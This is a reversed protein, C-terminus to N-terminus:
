EEKNVNNRSTPWYVIYREFHVKYFPEIRITSEDPVDMEFALSDLSVSKISSFILGDSVRLRPIREISIMGKAMNNLKGRFMKPSDQEGMRGSLVFPGYLLAAYDKSGQLYETYLQLSFDLSISNERNWERDIIWYGDKECPHLMAEGNVKLISNVAWKPKRIYLKFSKKEPIDLQFDVRSFNRWDVNQVLRIGKEKWALVSPIFLNVRLDDGQHTYIFKGLKAPSELGTHGCCWFSSDRTAYVKFHGPRMPTFYCCMGQQPDYASLIHNFLTREYYDALDANPHYTFLAETLRLMNVSNCTEPGGELLIKKAFDEKPFFHEGTSNGGIVWTHNKTVIQWFNLAANLFRKDGTAEYYRYFGVFKPIQTNAHWGYLIDKSESLPVWMARDNLRGAWNLYRDQNTIKYIDIYSENISGHECVLLKQIQEDSLRDLVQYGFWDALGTLLPLAEEMGCQVYAATLGLLMKNILYVPAWAGNVTANNTVIKGSAVEQFLKRGDKIGLLFGDKGAQKCLTLERLVYELKKLLRDDGTAQFMMSLSSIYYGLFGGRLPGAGWVDQSEWGAYVGAKPPLGAEVRYFHLLSDPNLWLLYDKGQEQLKSFPSDLLRIENLPFYTTQTDFAYISRIGMLLLLITIYFRRM